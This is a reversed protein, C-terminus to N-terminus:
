LLPERGRKAGNGAKLWPYAYEQEWESYILMDNRGEKWRKLIVHAMYMDRKRSLSCPAEELARWLCRDKGKKKKGARAM